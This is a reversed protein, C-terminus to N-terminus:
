KKVFRRRGENWVLSSKIERWWEAYKTRASAGSVSPQWFSQGTVLNLTEGAYRALWQDFGDADLIDILMAVGDAEGLSAMARGYIMQERKRNSPIGEPLGFGEDKPPVKALRRLHPLAERARMEVLMELLPKMGDTFGELKELFEIAPKRTLPDSFAKLADGIDPTLQGRQLARVLHPVARVHGIEQLVKACSEWGEDLLGGLRPVDRPGCVKGLVSQAWSAHSGHTDADKPDLYPLLSPIAARGLEALEDIRPDGSSWRDKPLTSMVEQVVLDANPDVEGFGGTGGAGVLAEQVTKLAEGAAGSPMRKLNGLEVRTYKDLTILVDIATERAKPKLRGIERILFHAAKGRMAILGQEAAARVDKSEAMLATTLTKLFRKEKATPEAAFTLSPGIALALAFVVAAYITRM